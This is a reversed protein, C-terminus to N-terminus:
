VCLPMGIVGGGGFGYGASKSSPTNMAGLIKHPGCPWRVASVAEGLRGLPWHGEQLPPFQPSTETPLTSAIHEDGSTQGESDM